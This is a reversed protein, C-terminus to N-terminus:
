RVVLLVLEFTAGGHPARGAADYAGFFVGMEEQFQRLGPYGSAVPRLGVYVRTDKRGDSVIELLPSQPAPGVDYEPGEHPVISTNTKVYVEGDARRYTDLDYRPGSPGLDVGAYAGGSDHQYRAVFHFGRQVALRRLPLPLRATYYGISDARVGWAGRGDLTTARGEFARFAGAALSVPDVNGYFAVLRWPDLPLGLDLRAPWGNGDPDADWDDAGPTTQPRSPDLGTLREAWDPVGDRDEDALVPHAAFESAVRDVSLLQSLRGSAPARLARWHVDLASTASTAADEAHGLRQQAAALVMLAAVRLPHVGDNMSELLRVGIMAESEATQANGALLHAYAVRASAAAIAPGDPDLRTRYIEREAEVLAPVESWRGDAIREWEINQVSLVVTQSPTDLARVVNTAELAPGPMTASSAALWGAAVLGTAAAAALGVYRWTYRRVDRPTGSPAGLGARLAIALADASAFRVAPDPHIAHTVASCIREPLGARLTALSRYAGAIHAARVEGVTSADVPFRGTLLRFLVVGLSYVDSGPTPGAGHFLEPAMFLPTGALPVPSAADTPLPHGASFDMLVIRGGRERMVNQTKVDRHLLGAAHVASLAACIDLGVAAAETASLTGEEELRRELTEGDILDMWLGIRGDIRDAGHITVVNPHRVRALLRAEALATTGTPPSTPALLKLAVHRALRTDWARFVTGAAGEGLREILEFPGWRELVGVSAPARTGITEGAPVDSLATRIARSMAEVGRLADLRPDAGGAADRLASWDAADGDIVADIARDVVNDPPLVM